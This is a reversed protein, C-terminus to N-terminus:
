CHSRCMVAQSRTQLYLTFHKKKKKKRRTGTTETGFNCESWLIQRCASTKEEAQCTSPALEPLFLQSKKKTFSQETRSAFFMNNITVGGCCHCRTQCCRFIFDLWKNLLGQVQSHTFLQFYNPPFFDQQLIKGTNLRNCCDGRKQLM